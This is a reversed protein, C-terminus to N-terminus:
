QEKAEEVKNVTEWHIKVNIEKYRLKLIKVAKNILYRTENLLTHNSIVLKVENTILNEYLTATGETYEINFEEFFVDLTIM